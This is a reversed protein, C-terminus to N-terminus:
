KLKRELDTLKQLNKLKYSSESVNKITNKLEKSNLFKELKEFLDTKQLEEIKDAPLTAVFKIIFDSNNSLKKILTNRINDIELNKIGLDSMAMKKLPIDKYYITLNACKKDNLVNWSSTIIKEEEPLSYTRVLYEKGDDDAQIKWLDEVNEGDVQFLDFAFRKIRSENGAVPIKNEDFMENIKTLDLKYHM